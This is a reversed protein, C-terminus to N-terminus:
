FGQKKGRKALVVRGLGNKLSKSEMLMDNSMLM